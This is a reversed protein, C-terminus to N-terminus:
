RFGKREMEVEEGDLKKLRIVQRKFDIGIFTEYYKKKFKGSQQPKKYLTGDTLYLEKRLNKSVYCRVGDRVYEVYNPNAVLIQEQGQVLLSNGEKNSRFANEDNLEDETVEPACAVSLNYANFAEIPDILHMVDQRATMQLIESNNNQQCVANLEHVIIDKDEKSHAFFM